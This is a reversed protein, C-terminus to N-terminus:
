PVIIVFDLGPDVEVQETIYIAEAVLAKRTSAM